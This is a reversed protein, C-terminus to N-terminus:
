LKTQPVSAAKVIYGLRPFHVRIPGPGGETTETELIVEERSLAVLKGFTSVYKGEFRILTLLFVFNPAQM